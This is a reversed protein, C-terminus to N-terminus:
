IIVSKKRTAVRNRPIIKGGNSIMMMGPIRRATRQEIKFPKM